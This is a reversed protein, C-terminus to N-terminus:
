VPVPQDCVDCIFRGFVPAVLESTLIRTCQGCRVDPEAAPKDSWCRQPSSCQLRQTQVEPTYDASGSVVCSTPLLLEERLAQVARSPSQPRPTVPGSAGGM